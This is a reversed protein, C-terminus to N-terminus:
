VVAGPGDEIQRVASFTSGCWGSRRESTDWHHEPHVLLLRTKRGEKLVVSTLSLLEFNPDDAGDHVPSRM